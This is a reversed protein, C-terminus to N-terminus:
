NFETVINDVTSVVVEHCISKEGHTKEIVGSCLSAHSSGNNKQLVEVTQRTHNNYIFLVISSLKNKM